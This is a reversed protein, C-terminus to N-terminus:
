VREGRVPAWNESLQKTKSIWGTQRDRRTEDRRTENRRTEDRPVADSVIFRRNRAGETTTEREEVVVMRAASGRRARARALNLRVLKLFSLLLKNAGV